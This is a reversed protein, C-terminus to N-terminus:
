AFWPKIFFCVPKSFTKTFTRMSDMKSIIITIKMMIMLQGKESRWGPARGLLHRRGRGQAQRRARRDGPYHLTTYHLTTYHLTTYHLTTFHLVTYHLTTYYLITYYFIFINFYLITDYQRDGPGDARAGRRGRGPVEPRGGQRRDPPDHGRQRLPLM